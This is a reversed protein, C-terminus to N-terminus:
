EGVSTRNWIEPDIDRSQGNTAILEDVEKKLGDLIERQTGSQFGSGFEYGDAARNIGYAVENTGPTKKVYLLFGRYEIVM